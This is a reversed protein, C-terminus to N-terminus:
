HPAMAKSADQLEMALDPHEALVQQMTSQGVERGWQEGMQRLEDMLMPLTTLTKQGVPTHYFALLQKIEERSFYKDYSPITKEVLKDLDLNTQFKAVFLDVLKERYNGPPLAQMMLPKLNQMSSTLTQEMMRRTGILQLLNRIDAAKQPDVTSAPPADTEAAKQPESNAAQASGPQAQASCFLTGLVLLLLYISNRTSKM